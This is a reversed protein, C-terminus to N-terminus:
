KVLTPSKKNLFFAWEERNRNLVKSNASNNSDIRRKSFKTKIFNIELGSKVSMVDNLYAICYFDVKLQVFLKM